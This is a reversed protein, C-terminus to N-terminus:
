KFHVGVELFVERGLGSFNVVNYYPWGNSADQPPDKDFLNNASLQLYADTGFSYRVSGNYTTYPGVTGTGLTNVSRGYRRGYLTTTWNGLSWTVGAGVNTKFEYSNYNHLLDIEPDGPNTRTTHSLEDYYSLDFQFDGYRGGDWRYDFSSQIGDLTESAINIPSVIVQQITGAALAFPFDEPFRQIRSLADRCQPSNVDFAQGGPSQGIRCNAELQLLSDISQQQIEDKIHIHQYDVHVNLHATPSWVLGYGFSQSNVNQLQPNGSFRGFLVLASQSCNGIPVNPEQTRCLFYDINGANYFGTEHSYLSVTDPTRFATAYTARLLLTDVPRLELGAKYTIKSDDRTSNSRYDDYRASLDATLLTLLPIRVEGGFAYQDRSGGSSTGTLGVFDGNAVRPDIPNDLHQNGVLGVAAIGVSGAPLEFLDTNTVTMSLNQQWSTSDSRVFDSMARFQAPTLATYLHSLNPDFAAFGFGFPDVGQQAGLYYDIFPQNLPWLQRSNVSVYSRNYYADYAWNSAGFNGRVGLNVNY